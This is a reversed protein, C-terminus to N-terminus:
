IEIMKHYLLLLHTASWSFHAANLGKGNLPNYNEYIPKGRQKLGELRNFLQNIFIKAEKKYGYNALGKIAFYAQDLWVPGRWYGDATPTFEPHDKAITPFPIYTAFKTSDMIMQKVKEAQEQTAAGAWLPIWGEPGQVKCFGKGDLLIDYFCGSEKDFMRNQILLKLTNRM